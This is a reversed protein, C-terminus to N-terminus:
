PCGLYWIPLCTPGTIPRFSGDSRRGHAGERSVYIDQPPPGYQWSLPAVLYYADKEADPPRFTKSLVGYTSCYLPVHSYYDGLLGEYIAYDFDSSLCGSDWTLTLSVGPEDVQKGLMLPTGLVYEGDPVAGAPNPPYLWNRDILVSAGVYTGAVAPGSGGQFTLGLALYVDYNEIPLAIVVQAFTSSDQYPWRGIL